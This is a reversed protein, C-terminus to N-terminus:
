RVELVRWGGDTWRLVLVVTTRPTAPVHVEGEDTRQRHPSVAYDVEVVADVPGDAGATAPSWPEAPRADFVEAQADLVDVGDLEVLVAADRAEAPSGAVVVSSLDGAGDTLLALRRATLERAASSPDAPDLVADAPPAAGDTTAVTGPVPDDREPSSGTPGLFALVAVLGGCALVIGASVVVARVAGRRRASGRGGNGHARSRRSGRPAGGADRRARRSTPTPLAPSPSGTSAPSSTRRGGFAGAVLRAADPMVVPRPEVADYCRAAFTGVAPRASPEDRLAVSLEAHLAALDRAEDPDDPARYSPHSTAPPPVLDLVLRALDGVDDAATGSAPTLPPTLVARGSPTVVVSAADLSGHVRGSRHLGALGQAVPVLVTVAEAARFPERAAALEDLRLGDVHDVLVALTSEGAEVVDRVSRLHESERSLERLHTVLADRAAPEAPAVLREVECVTGAGDHAVTGGRAGPERRVSWGAVALATVLDLDPEASPRPRRPSSPM